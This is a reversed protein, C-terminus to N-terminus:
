YIVPTNVVFPFDYSDLERCTALAFADANDSTRHQIASTARASVRRATPWGQVADVCRQYRNRSSQDALTWGGRIFSHM